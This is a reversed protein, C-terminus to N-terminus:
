RMGILAQIGFTCAANIYYREMKINFVISVAVYTANPMIM